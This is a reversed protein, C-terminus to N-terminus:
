RMVEPKWEAIPREANWRAEGSLEPRWNSDTMLEFAGKQCIMIWLKPMFLFFLKAYSKLNSVTWFIIVEEDKKVGREKFVIWLNEFDKKHTILGVAGRPLKKSELVVSAYAETTNKTIIKGSKISASPTFSIVRCAYGEVIKWESDKRLIFKSM